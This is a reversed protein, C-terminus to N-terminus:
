AGQPRLMNAADAGCEIEIERGHSDFHRTLVHSELACSDASVSPLRWGARLALHRHPRAKVGRGANASAAKKIAMLVARLRRHAGYM